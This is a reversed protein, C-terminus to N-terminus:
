LGNFISPQVVEIIMISVFYINNACSINLINNKSCIGINRPNRGKINQALLIQYPVVTLHNHVLIFINIFTALSKDSITTRKLM